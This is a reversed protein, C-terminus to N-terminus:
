LLPEAIAYGLQQLSTFCYFCARAIRKVLRL